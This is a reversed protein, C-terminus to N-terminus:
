AAVKHKECKTKWDLEYCADCIPFAEGEQVDKDYENLNVKKGCVYCQSKTKM